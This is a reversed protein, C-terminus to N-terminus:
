PFKARIGLMVSFGDAHIEANAYQEKETFLWRMELTFSIKDDWSIYSGELGIGAYYGGESLKDSPYFESTYRSYYYGLGGTAYPRVRHEPFPMLILGAQLATTEREIELSLDPNDLVYVLLDSEQFDTSVEMALWSQFFAGGTLGINFSGEDDVDNLKIYGLRGGLHLIPWDYGTMQASDEALIPMAGFWAAMLALGISRWKIRWTSCPTM